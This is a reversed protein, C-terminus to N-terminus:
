KQAHCVTKVQYIYTYWIGIFIDFSISTISHILKGSKFINLSSLEFHCCPSCGNKLQYMNRRLIM